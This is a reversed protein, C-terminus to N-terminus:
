LIRSARKAKREALRREHERDVANRIKISIGWVILLFGVMLEIMTIWFSQEIGTM